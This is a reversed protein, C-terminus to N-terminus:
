QNRSDMPILTQYVTRLWYLFIEVTKIHKKKLFFLCFLLLLQPKSNLKKDGELQFLAAYNYFASKSCSRSPKGVLADFMNLKFMGSLLSQVVYM